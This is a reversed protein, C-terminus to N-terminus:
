APPEKGPPCAALAAALLKERTNEARGDLVAAFLYRLVGGLERGPAYGAAILDDGKVALDALSRCPKEGCMTALAGQVAAIDALRAAAPSDATKEWADLLVLLAAADADGLGALFRRLSPAGGTYPDARHLLLKTVRERTRRDFRLANMAATLRAPADATDALYWFFAAYRLVPEPPLLPLMRAIRSVRGGEQAVIEWWLPLAAGIVPAYKELVEGAAPGCLLRNMEEHIREASIRSLLPACARAAQATNEEITFSLVSAFRLARLIRLADETFRREPEGVARLIGARLDSLGGFFDCLGIDPHYAMANVTFDRRAADERLSATFRVAAPHRHDAYAGDLRYTTVEVPMGDLLVTVTGHRIGTDILRWGALAAHVEEPHASTTIDYDKPAVGRLRDRVCGGVLFAEHGVQNLRRLVREVPAPLPFSLDNERGTEM